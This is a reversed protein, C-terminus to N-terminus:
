HRQETSNADPNLVLCVRLEKLERRRKALSSAMAISLSGSFSGSAGRQGRHLAGISRSRSPTTGAAIDWESNVVYVHRGQPFVTMKSPSVYGPESLGQSTAARLGAEADTRDGERALRPRNDVTLSRDSPAGGLGGGGAILAPLGRGV